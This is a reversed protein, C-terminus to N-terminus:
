ETPPIIGHMRLRMELKAPLFVINMPHFYGEKDLQYIINRIQPTSTIMVQETCPPSGPNSWPSPPRAPETSPTTLETQSYHPPNIPTKRTSSTSDLIFFPTLDPPPDSSSTGSDNRRKPAFASSLRETSSRFEPFSALSSDSSVDESSNPTDPAHETKKSKRMRKKVAEKALGVYKDANDEVSRHAAGVAKGM